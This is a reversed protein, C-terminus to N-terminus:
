EQGYLYTWICGMFEGWNAFKCTQGTQPNRPIMEFQILGLLQLICVCESEVTAIPWASHCASTSSCQTRIKQGDTYELLPVGRAHLIQCQLMFADLHMINFFGHAPKTPSRKLVLDGATFRIEAEISKGNQVHILVIFLLAACCCRVQFVTGFVTTDVDVTQQTFYLCKQKNEMMFQRISLFVDRVRGNPALSHVIRVRFDRFFSAWRPDLIWVRYRLVTPNLELAAVRQVLASNAKLQFDAWQHDPQV